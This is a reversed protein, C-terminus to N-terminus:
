PPAASQDRLARLAACAAGFGNDINVVVLGQACSCLLANLATEGHNSRGYGTATPVGIVLAPVLGALVTPLAAEMGAVCIIVQKDRLEALREQIRWLGAVGVDNIEEASEGHFALTRLAERAVPVDASGGTVVAVRGVRNDEVPSATAPEPLFWATQSVEDYDLVGRDVTLCAHDAPELRTFLMAHRRQQLEALIAQLQARSKHRCMVAEGLGTRSSRDYDLTIERTM